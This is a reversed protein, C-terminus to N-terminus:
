FNHNETQAPTYYRLLNVGYGLPYMPIFGKQNAAHNNETNELKYLHDQIKSKNKLM